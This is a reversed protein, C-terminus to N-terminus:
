KKRLGIDLVRAQDDLRHMQLSLTGGSVGVTMRRPPEDPESMALLVSDGKRAGSLTAAKSGHRWSGSYRRSKPDFQLDARVRSNILLGGCEGSFVLSAGDTDGKLTCKVSMMPTGPALRVQGSGSWDGEFRSLYDAERQDSPGAVLPMGTLLGGSLAAVVAGIHWVRM